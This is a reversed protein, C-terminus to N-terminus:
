MIEVNFSLSWYTNIMQQSELEFRTCQGKSDTLRGYVYVKQLWQFQKKKKKKCCSVCPKSILSELTNRKGRREKVIKISSIYVEEPM